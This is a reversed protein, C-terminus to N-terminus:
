PLPANITRHQGLIIAVDKERNLPLICADGGLYIYKNYIFKYLGWEQLVKHHDQKLAEDLTKCQLVYYYVFWILYYVAERQEVSIRSLSSKGNTMNHIYSKVLTDKQDNETDTQKKAGSESTKLIIYCQNGALVDAYKYLLNMNTVDLFRWLSKDM